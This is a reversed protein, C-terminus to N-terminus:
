EENSSGNLGAIMGYLVNVITAGAFILIAGVIYPIMTKKYEAKEEASGIVYKIGIVLIVVVAIVVGAIQIVGVIRKGLNQVDTQDSYDPKTLADIASKPGTGEEAAFAIGAFMAVLIVALLLTSIIKVSKKM